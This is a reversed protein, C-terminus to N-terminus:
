ACASASRRRRGASGGCCGTCCRSRCTSSCWRSCRSRSARRTSRRSATCSSTSRSCASSGSRGAVRLRRRGAPRQRAQCPAGARDLGAGGRRRRPVAARAPEVDRRRGPDSGPIPARGRRAAGAAGPPPRDRARGRGAGCARLDGRRARIAPPSPGAAAAALGLHRDAAPGPLPAVRRADRTGTQAARAPAAHRGRVVGRGRRRAQAASRDTRRVRDGTHIM